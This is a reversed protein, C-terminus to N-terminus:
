SSHRRRRCRSRAAPGSGAAAGAPQQRAGGVRPRLAGSRLSGWAPETMGLREELGAQERWLARPVRDGLAALDKANLAAEQRWIVPDVSLLTDLQDAGLSLGSLDLDGAEPLRGVPSDVAGADGEIREVIWKLVRANDGFGPWLFKGEASKRFWNVLYIRPLQGSDSAASAGIRLWHEFYSAMDYGCFPLM